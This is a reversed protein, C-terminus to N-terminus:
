EPYAAEYSIQVCVRRFVILFHWGNLLMWDMLLYFEVAEYGQYM